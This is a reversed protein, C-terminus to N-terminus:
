LGKVAKDIEKPASELRESEGLVEFNQSLFNEGFLYYRWLKLASVVAILEVDHTPYNREHPKM